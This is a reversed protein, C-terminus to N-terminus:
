DIYASFSQQRPTKLSFNSIEDQEQCLGSILLALYTILPTIDEIGEIYTM